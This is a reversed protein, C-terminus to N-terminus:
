KFYFKQTLDCDNLMKQWSKLEENEVFLNSVYNM